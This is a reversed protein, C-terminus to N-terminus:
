ISTRSSRSLMDLTQKRGGTGKKEEKEWREVEEKEGGESGGEEGEGEGNMGNIIWNIRNEGGKDVDSHSSKFHIERGKKDYFYYM